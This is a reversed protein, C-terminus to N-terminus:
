RLKIGLVKELRRIEDDTPEPPDVMVGKESDYTKTTIERFREKSIGSAERVDAPFMKGAGAPNMMARNLAIDLRRHIPGHEFDHQEKAAAEEKRHAIGAKEEDWSPLAPEGKLARAENQLNRYETQHADRSRDDDPWPWMARLKAEIEGIRGQKQEAENAPRLTLTHVYGGQDDQSRKYGTVAHLEGDHRIVNGVRYADVNRSSSNKRVTKIAPQTTM